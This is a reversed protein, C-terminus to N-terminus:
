VAGPGDTAVLLSDALGLLVAVTSEPQLRRDGLRHRLRDRADALAQTPHNAESMSGAVANWLAEFSALTEADLDSPPLAVECLYDWTALRDAATIPSALSPREDAATAFTSPPLEDAYGQEALWRHQEADWRQQRERHAEALRRLQERLEQEDPDIDSM